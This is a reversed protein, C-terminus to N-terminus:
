PWVKYRRVSYRDGGASGLTWLTRGVASAALPRDPLPLRERVHFRDEGPQLRWLLGSKADYAWLESGVWELSSPWLGEPAQLSRAPGGGLIQRWFLKSAADYTWLERGDFAAAAAVGASPILREGLQRSPEAPDLRLVGASAADLAWLAEKTWELSLPHTPFPLEVRRGPRGPDSAPASVIGGDWEAFWLTDPSAALATPRRLAISHESQLSLHARGFVWWGTWVTFGAAIAAALIVLPRGSRDASSRAGAESWAGASSAASQAANAMNKLVDALRAANEVEEAEKAHLKELWEERERRLKEEWSEFEQRQTEWAHHERDWMERWQRREEEWAAQQEKLRGELESVKASANGLADRSETSSKREALLQAESADLNTEFQKFRDSIQRKERDAAEAAQRLRKAEAELASAKATQHAEREHWKKELNKWYTQLQEWRAREERAKAEAAELGRKAAAVEEAARSREAAVEEAFRKQSEAAELRREDRGASISRQADELATSAKTMQELFLDQERELKQRLKILEAESATLRAKLSGVTRERAELAERLEVLDVEYRRAAYSGQFAPYDAPPPLFDEEEASRVRRWLEVLEKELDGSEM